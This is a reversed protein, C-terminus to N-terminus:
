KFDDINFDRPLYCVLSEIKDGIKVYIAKVINGKKSEFERAYFSLYKTINIEKM